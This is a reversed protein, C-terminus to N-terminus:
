VVEEETKDKYKYEVEKDEEKEGFLKKSRVGESKVEKNPDFLTHTTGETILLTVINPITRTRTIAIQKTVVIRRKADVKNQILAEGRKM